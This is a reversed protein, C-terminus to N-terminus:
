SRERPWVLALGAAFLLAGVLWRSIPVAILVAAAFLVVAGLKRAM